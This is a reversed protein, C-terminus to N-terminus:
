APRPKLARNLARNLAIFLTGLSAFAVLFKLPINQATGIKKQYRIRIYVYIHVHIHTHKHTHQHTHTPTHTHTHTYTYM